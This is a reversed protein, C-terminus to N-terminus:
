QSPFFARQVSTATGPLHSRWFGVALCWVPSASPLKLAAYARTKWPVSACIMHGKNQYKPIIGINEKKSIEKSAESSGMLPEHRTRTALEAVGHCDMVHRHMPWPQCALRWRLLYLITRYGGCWHHLTLLISGWSPMFFTNLWTLLDNSLSWCSSAYYKCCLLRCSWTWWPYRCLDRCFFRVCWTLWIDFYQLIDGGWFFDLLIFFFLGCDYFIAIGNEGNQPAVHRPLARAMPRLRLSSNLLLEPCSGDGGHGAPRGNPTATSVGGRPGSFSKRLLLSDYAGEIKTPNGLPWVNAWAALGDLCSALAGCPGQGPTERVCASGLCQSGQEIGFESVFCSSDKEYSVRSGFPQFNSNTLQFVHRKAQFDVIRGIYYNEGNIQHQADTGYAHANFDDQACKPDVIYLDGIFYFTDNYGNAGADEPLCVLMHDTVPEKKRDRIVNTRYDNSTISYQERNLNLPNTDIRESTGALPVIGFRQRTKTSDCCRQLTFDGNSLM